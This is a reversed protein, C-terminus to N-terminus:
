ENSIGGPIISTAVLYCCGSCPQSEAWWLHGMGPSILFSDIVSSKDKLHPFEAAEWEAGKVFARRIWFWCIGMLFFPVTLIRAVKERFSM